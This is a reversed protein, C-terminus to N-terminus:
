AAVEAQPLEKTYDLWKNTTQEAVSFVHNEVDRTKDAFKMKLGGLLDYSVIIMKRFTLTNAFHVIAVGKAQDISKIKLTKGPNFM